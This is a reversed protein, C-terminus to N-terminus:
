NPDGILIFGSWYFPHEYNRVAASGETSKRPEIRGRTGRMTLDRTLQKVEDPGLSRLWRKAEALAEAKPMPKVTREPTGLLNEYFRTMLLATATDDVQWLSVVVSRTGALFLAQSFGLYGEGGAYKGLGTNCASLTVLEADLKWGRLIREATLRGDYFEKGHVLQQLPDPLRDQALILASQLPRQNDLIGHTAFHLYRFTRLDGAMALQDLNQESAESGLLLKPKTFLRALGQIEQRTGPLPLFAERQNVADSRAAKPSSTGEEKPRQFAPDGLGLLRAASTERGPDSRNGKLWAYTTGSPAYSVTWRDTLAEVPIAAMKHAPLVILHRVAPLEAGAKLHEELPTLRQRTLKQALEKWSGAGKTPRRAFARRVRIPLQDDEDTWAGDKGTGLLRVWVPTGRRRVLCAWHDGKPDTRKDQDSLDVWGILAADEPLQTQIRSLDYVAGAAVGYREALDAQFRVFETQAADRQQRLEKVSKATDAGGGVSLAAVQRDLFDLRGLLEQERRRDRANLPRGSLDDLLGRALNHELANWAEEPKDGRAAV